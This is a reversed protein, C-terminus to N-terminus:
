SGLGGRKKCLERWRVVDNDKLGRAAKVCGRFDGLEMAAQTELKRADRSRRWCERQKSRELVTKWRYAQAAVKAQERVQECASTEHAPTRPKGRKEKIGSKAETNARAKADPSTEPSTEPSTGPSMDNTTEPSPEPSPGSDSEAEARAALTDTTPEPRPDDTTAIVQVDPTPAVGATAPPDAAPAQQSALTFVLALAGLGGAVLAWGLWPRRTEDPAPEDFARVVENLREVFAHATAPRRSPDLALTDDVLAILKQPLGPVLEGLSPPAATQKAVLIKMPNKDIFPPRGAILTFLTSGLAYIDFHPGVAEGISQEPAMHEPTGIIMGPTTAAASSLRAQNAAVGFDLVKVVENDGRRAIMINEPKLDRHVVGAAHAADIAAGVEGMIACAERAPFSGREDLILGLDRGEQYEMVLFRRGDELVDADFVDIIGPHGIASANRAEAAFRGAVDPSSSWETLLVKIAVKRGVELHEGLYVQAMAGIGILAEVRYRDCLVTGSLIHENEPPAPGMLLDLDRQAIDENSLASKSQAPAPRDSSEKSPAALKETSVVTGSATVMASAQPASEPTPARTASQAAALNKPSVITGSATVM